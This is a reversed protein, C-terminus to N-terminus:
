YTFSEDSNIDYGLKLYKEFILPHFVIRNWNVKDINKELIYIADTNESLNFWNVKDLNKGIHPSCKYKKIFM